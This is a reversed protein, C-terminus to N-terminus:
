PGVTLDVTKATDAGASILITPEDESLKERKRLQVELRYTGTPVRVSYGGNPGTTSQYREGTEINVVSINRDALADDSPGHLVGAITGGVAASTTKVITTTPHCDAGVLVSTAVFAHLALWRVSFPQTTRRTM